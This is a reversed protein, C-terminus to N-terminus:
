PAHGSAGQSGGFAFTSLRGREGVVVVLVFVGAAHGPGIEQVALTAFDNTCVLFFLHGTAQVAAAFLSFL